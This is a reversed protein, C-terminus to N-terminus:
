NATTGVDLANWGAAGLMQLRRINAEYIADPDDVAAVARAISDERLLHLLPYPSRNTYNEIAETPTNAFAFLPHFGAIQVVGRLGERKILRDAKPLFANYDHFDQLVHPHILLTTDTSSPDTDHLLRLEYRLTESLAETATAHSVAFRIQNKRLVANAFPCLNLGIVARELWVRTAAIVAADTHVAPTSQDSQSASSPPAPPIAAM